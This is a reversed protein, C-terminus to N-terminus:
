IDNNDGRIVIKFDLYEKLLRVPAYLRDAKIEPRPEADKFSYVTLDKQEITISSGCAPIVIAKDPMQITAESKSSDWAVEYGLGEAIDRVPLMLSESIGGGCSTLFIRTYMDEMLIDRGNIELTTGDFEAVSAANAISSFLFAGFLALIVIIKKM